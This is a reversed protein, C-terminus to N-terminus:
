NEMFFNRIFRESCSKIPQEDLKSRKYGAANIFMSYKRDNRLRRSLTYNGLRDTVAQSLIWSPELFADYEYILTGQVLIVLKADSIGQKTKADVIKGSMTVKRPRRDDCANQKPINPRTGIAEPKKITNAGAEENTAVPAHDVDQDGTKEATNLYDQKTTSTNYIVEIAEKNGDLYFLVKFRHDGVSLNKAPQFSCESNENLEGSIVEGGDLQSHCKKVSSDMQWSWKPRLPNNTDIELKPPQLPNTTDTELKPQLKPVYEFHTTYCTPTYGSKKCDYNWWCPVNKGSRNKVVCFKVEYSGHKFNANANIKMQWEYNFGNYKIYNKLPVLYYIPLASATKTSLIIIQLYNRWRSPLFGEVHFKPLESPSEQLVKLVSDGQSVSTPPEPPSSEQLTDGLSVCSYFASLIAVTTITAKFLKTNQYM